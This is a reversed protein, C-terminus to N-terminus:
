YSGGGEEIKWTCHVHGRREKRETASGGGKKREHKVNEMMAELEYKM